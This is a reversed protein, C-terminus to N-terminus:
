LSKWRPTAMLPPTERRLQAQMYESGPYEAGVCVCMSDEVDEIGFTWFMPSFATASHTVPTKKKQEIWGLIVKKLFFLLIFYFHINSIWNQIQWQLGLKLGPDDDNM